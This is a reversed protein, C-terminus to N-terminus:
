RVQVSLRVETAGSAPAVQRLRQGQPLQYLGLELVYEGPEAEPSLAIEYTDTLYEGPLWSSTPRTGGLPPADKQGQLRGQADLLHTFVTYDGQIRALAQWQLTLELRRAGPPQEVSSGLLLVNDEFRATPPRAPDPLAAAPITHPSLYPSSALITAALLAALFVPQRLMRGWPVGCLAGAATMALAVGVIGLLQWSQPLAFQLGLSAWLAAGPPTVLALLILLLAWLAAVLRASAPAGHRGEGAEQGLFLGGLALVALIVAVAGLQMPPEGPGPQSAPVILRYADVGQIAAVNASRSPWLQALAVVGGPLMALLGNRAGAGGGLAWAYAVLLPLGALTLGPHALALLLGASVAALPRGWRWASASDATITGAAAWLAVPLLALALSESLAGRVYVLGLTYPLYTYILASVLGASADLARRAAGYMGLGAVLLALAYTARVAGYAGLGVGALARALAHALPAADGPGAPFLTAAAAPQAVRYVAALGTSSQFFGPYLLPAWAFVSLAVVILWNRDFPQEQADQSM